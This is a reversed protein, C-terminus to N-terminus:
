TWKSKESIILSPWNKYVKSRISAPYIERRMFWDKHIHKFLLCSGIKSIKKKGLGQLKRGRFRYNIGIDQQIEAIRHCSVM